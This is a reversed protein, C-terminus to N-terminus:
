SGPILGTPILCKCLILCLSAFGSVHKLLHVFSMHHSNWLRFRPPLLPAPPLSVSHNSRALPSSRLFPKMLSALVQLIPLRLSWSLQVPLFVSCALPCPQWAHTCLNHVACPSRASPTLPLQAQRLFPCSKRIQVCCGWPSASAIRRTNWAFFLDYVFASLVPALMCPVREM